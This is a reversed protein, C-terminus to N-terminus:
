GRRQPLIPFYRTIPTHYGKTSFKWHARLTQEAQTIWLTLHDPHCKILEDYPKYIHRSRLHLPLQTCEQYLDHIRAELRLRHINNAETTTNGFVLTNRNAWALLVTDWIWRTLSDTWKNNNTTPTQPRSQAWLPTLRCRFFNEWGIDSQVEIAAHLILTEDTALLDHELPSRLEMWAYVHDVLLELMRAPVQEQLVTKYLLQVRQQRYEEDNVWCCQVVHDNTEIATKCRPCLETPHHGYRHLKRFTPLWNHLFKIVTHHHSPSLHTM